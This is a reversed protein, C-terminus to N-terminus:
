NLNYFMKLSAPTLIYQIVLLTKFLRVQIKEIVQPSIGFMNTEDLGNKEQGEKRKREEPEVDKGVADKSTHIVDLQLTSSFRIKITYQPQDSTSYNCKQALTPLYLEEEKNKDTEKTKQKKKGTISSYFWVFISVIHSIIKM